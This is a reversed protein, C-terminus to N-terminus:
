AQRHFVAGLHKTHTCNREDRHVTMRRPEHCDEDGDDEQGNHYLRDPRAQEDHRAEQRHEEATQQNPAPSDDLARNLFHIVSTRPSHM